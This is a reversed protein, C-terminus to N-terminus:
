RQRMVTVLTTAKRTSAVPEFVFEFFYEHVFVCFLGSLGEFCGCVCDHRWGVFSLPLPSLNQVTVVVIPDGCHSGRRIRRHVFSPFIALRKVRGMEVNQAEPVSLSFFRYSSNFLKPRKNDWDAGIIQIRKKRFVTYNKPYDPRHNDYESKQM